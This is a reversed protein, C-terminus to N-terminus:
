RNKVFIKRGRRRRKEDWRNRGRTKRERRRKREAHALVSHRQLVIIQVFVVIRHVNQLVMKDRRKLLSESTALLYFSFPSFILSIASMSLLFFLFVRFLSPFVLWTKGVKEGAEKKQEMEEKNCCGKGRKGGRRRKMRVLFETKKVKKKGRKKRKRRWTRCSKAACCTGVSVAAKWFATSWSRLRSNTFNWSLILFEVYEALFLPFFLQITKLFGFCSREESENRPEKQIESTERVTENADKVRYVDVCAFCCSSSFSFSAVKRPSFITEGSASIPVSTLVFFLFFFITIIFFFLLLLSDHNSMSLEGICSSTKISLGRQSPTNKSRGQFIAGVNAGVQGNGVTAEDEGRRREEFCLLLVSSSFFVLLDFFLPFNAAERLSRLSHLFRQYFNCSSDSSSFGRAHNWEETKKEKKDEAIEARRKRMDERRRM